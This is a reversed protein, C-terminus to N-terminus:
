RALIVSIAKCYPSGVDTYELDIKIKLCLGWLTWLWKGKQVNSQKSDFWMEYFMITKKIRDKIREQTCHFNTQIPLPWTQLYIEVQLCLSDSKEDVNPNLILNDTIELIESSLDIIKWCFNPGLSIENQTTDLFLFTSNKFNQRCNTYISQVIM